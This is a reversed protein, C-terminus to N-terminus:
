VRGEVRVARVLAQVAENIESDGSYTIGNINVSDRPMSAIDGRLLKIASVVDDNTAGNQRKSMSAAIPGVSMADVSLTRNSFMGNIANAGSEVGSLDLVPRITPQADIDSNIVDSIKSIAGSIAGTATKGLGFGSNYVASEMQGIGIVLGEGLWNGSQMTAKSPSASQQGDKEGEVAKQGLRYGAWYVSDQKADIGKVLGAGLDKGASKFDDAAKSAGDAGKSVVSKIAKSVKSEANTFAKIFKDIADKGIKDLSTGLNVIGDFSIGSVGKAFGTLDNVIGSLKTTEVGDMEASFEKVKKGFKVLQGGFGSLDNDGEWWSKIGGSKPIANALAVMIEGANAAATVAGSDINGSVAKSFMAMDQGFWLIKDGFTALDNDGTFWSVVGGSNPIKEALAVMIDGATSAAKVAEEDVGDKVTNSFSVIAKGFVVLQLGFTSMDNDGTFWSVVGGSNPLTNAFEAMMMGANKAAEVAESNIGGNASVTASFSVIATGFQKIQEAFVGMDNEGMFWGLVGGSNPLSNAMQVLALGAESAVKVAELDIKGSVATSFTTVAEGLAKFKEGLGEFADGGTLWATMSSLLNSGTLSLIADVLTAVGNGVSEDIGKAGNIFDAANNMFDSLHTGLKPLAAMTGDMIGGLVGGILNGIISGIGQSLREFLGIGKDLFTEIVPFKDILAGLAVALLAVVGMFGLLSYMGGMGVMALPGVLAIIACVGAMTLLLKSLADAYPMAEKVNLASMMALVLGVGALVITLAGMGLAGMLINPTLAGFISMAAAVITLAGMLVVLAMVNPMADTVGLANMMALVLGLLALVGTLAAMGLAGMLINTSFAGFVSMAAAVLTLTGMLIVLAAVNPLANTVGLANMMALVLGLLALVGTLATLALTMKGIQGVTMAKSKGLVTFSTSMALLLAGLAVASPVMAEPNGWKSMGILIGGLAAVVLTLVAITAISRQVTKAGTKLKSMALMLLAMMGMVASLAATSSALKAPDIFSLTALAVALIGIAVTMVILEDKVKQAKGTSVILMSMMASLLGVAVIGKTLNKLKILGLMIAVASLIGISISMMLVTFGLKAPNNGALKVAYMLGSIIVGFAAVAAIGKVMNETDIGSMIKATLALILMSGSIALITAGIKPVDKGALKTIAVLLAILGSFATMVILGKVIAGNDLKSIAKIVHTMILMSASMALLVSGLSGLNPGALKTIAVLGAIFGGFALMVAGGKALAGGDLNDIRKIVITLLLMAFSIKLLTSGVLNAKAGGLKTFNILEEMIVTLLVIGLAGKVLGGWSIGSLTKVVGALIIMAVSMGVLTFMFKGMNIGEKFNMKDIAKSLFYIIAALAGLALIAEWLKDSDIKTLLFVSATLIGIAIAFSLIADARMKFAAAKEMKAFGTMVRKVGIGVDELLEGVGEFMSGFGALGDGIKNFAVIIGAGMAAALIAGFDIQKIVEICKNGLDKFAQGAAPFGNKLGMVLGAIIFGGIAAFVVSPSHIGLVSCISNIIAAGLNWMFQGVIKIGAALGGLLGSIINTGIGESPNRSFFAQFENWAYNCLEWIASVIFKLGGVIGNAIAIPIDRALNDSNKLEAFWEKIADISKKIGPALLKFVGTFDLISDMWDRFGVIVDGINATLDLIDVNFVSLFQGVIKLAIKLGGGLITTVIDLLAFIGKFTRQLKKGTDNLEGTEADTLRLKESFEHIGLIMTYLRVASIPPFIASWAEAMAKFVGVLGSGANKLAEILATRGDMEKMQDLLATMPIGLRKSEAHLERLMRIEEAKFGLDLLEQDTLSDLMREFKDTADTAMETAKIGEKTAENTKAMEVGAKRHAEAVDEQTIKHKYGLNVLNQVVRPNYGAKELLYFRDPDDGRNNYDGRWVKNVIDQYHELSDVVKGVADAAKEAKEMTQGFMSNEWKELVSNALNKWPEFSLTNELLRNRADAMTTIIGSIFNTLGTWFEKAEDLGGFIIQWTDKWGTGATAKLSDMMMTFTKIDQAASYAKKGIETQEDGYAGFVEMMVETTAWQEQLGDIFLQQLTMTKGGAIYADEGAQKLTGAAIAADVMQQKWEMTAIGANNISNYDMRTLYGTGIAQGLNYFAISAKGADGGALATANAIGIMAQTADELAVGANTFKPLNNLMDATSYVTKDAYEDLKKLEQEVEEATKGTGAMTTQVANLTMEYEQWGDKVPAVTLASVFNKAANVASNTINALATVAMVELASFKARVTEVSNGMQSMDVKRSAAEVNELGKSAGDLRLKQKLKDLTSMSQAVNKEFHRNDFQMSVVREDVQKSM